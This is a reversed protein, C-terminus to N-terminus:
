KENVRKGTMHEISLELCQVRKGDKQIEKEVYDLPAYKMGLNRVRELVEGRDQLIRIRGFVIVSRVKLWWEGQVPEGHEVVCFTVKDCRQIADIKHGEAACHFYIKGDAYVFDLPLAYPYGDDGQVALVGRRERSLIEECEERTLQQKYRRMERFM